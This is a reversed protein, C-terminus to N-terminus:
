RTPIGFSRDAGVLLRCRPNRAQWDGWSQLAVPGLSHLIGGKRRGAVAILGRERVVWLSETERDYLLPSGDHFYGSSGLTVRRGELMPEFLHISQEVPQFPTFIVLLPRGAVTDNIVEVKELVMLPYALSAGKWNLGVVRDNEPIAEWRQGGGVEVIPRDIARIVDRGFPDSLRDPDLEGKGVRFWGHGHGPRWGSWLLTAEGEDHIWNAPKVAYSIKPSIAVFGIIRSHRDAEWDHQLARWEHWLTPTKVGIFGLLIVLAALNFLRHWALRSRSEAPSSKPGVPVPGPDAQVM